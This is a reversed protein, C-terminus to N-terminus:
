PLTIGKEEKFEHNWTLKATMPFDRKEQTLKETNPIALFNRRMLWADGLEKLIVITDSKASTQRRKKKKFPM